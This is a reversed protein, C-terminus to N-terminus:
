AGVSVMARGPVGYRDYLREYRAAISTWSFNAELRSRGLRGMRECREPSAILAEVAARIAEPNRAPVLMASDGVAEACGTSQTTVIALGAAMAELLVIPFNEAESPLVFIRSTEYLDRLQPSSQDLWGHFCVAGGVRAARARLAPLYPGDGVIDLSWGPPLSRLADLVYQVGKRPFLRSVVLVRNERRRDPRFRDPDIGNPVLELDLSRQRRILDGLHESQCVVRAAGDVVRHWLPTLHRHWRTFRDPNYGPVDSGHATILYPLGTARHLAHAVLGDPMIFHTHNVDYRRRRHLRLAVPLAAAVYTALEPVSCIARRLRICPVRHVGVGDVSEFAPQPWRRMTVVDVEHGRAALAQTLGHVVRAGGGGLPPYEYSLTLIRM